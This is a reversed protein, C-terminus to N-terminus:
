ARPTRNEAIIEARRGDASNALSEIQEALAVHNNTSPYRLVYLKRLRKSLEDVEKVVKGSQFIYHPRSSPYRFASSEVILSIAPDNMSFGVFLLTHTLLLTALFDGYFQNSFAGRQYSTRDFVIEKPEDISGHIKVLYDDNDRFMRFVAADVRSIVKPYRGSGAEQWASELLKDFNTTVVIRPRLLFLAKHLRSVDAAQQFEAELVEQWAESLHEKLLESALLLDQKKIQEQVLKKIRSSAVRKNAESLFENWDKFSGGERPHAWKSVGAGVFLAFKRRAVDEVLDANFLLQTM